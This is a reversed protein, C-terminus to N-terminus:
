FLTGLPMIFQVLVWIKIIVKFHYQCFCKPTIFAMTGLVSVSLQVFGIVVVVNDIVDVVVVDDDVVIVEDVVVVVIDDDDVVVVIDYVVVVVAVVDIAVAIIVVVVVFNCHDVSSALAISIADM